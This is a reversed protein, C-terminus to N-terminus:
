SHHGSPRMVRVMAFHASLALMMYWLLLSIGVWNRNTRDAERPNSPFRYFFLEVDRDVHQVAQWTPNKSESSELIVQTRRSDEGPSMGYWDSIILLIVQTAVFILSNREFLQEVMEYNMEDYIYIYTCIYTPVVGVWYFDGMKLIPSHHKWIGLGMNKGFRQIWSANVRLLQRSLEHFRLVM